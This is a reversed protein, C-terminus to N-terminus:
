MGIFLRLSMSFVMYDLSFYPIWSQIGGDKSYKAFTTKECGSGARRYLSLSIPFEGVGGEIAVVSDRYIQASSFIGSEPMTAPCSVAADANANALTFISLILGYLLREFAFGVQNRLLGWCRNLEETRALELLSGVQEEAQRFIESM